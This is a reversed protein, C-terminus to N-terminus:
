SWAAFAHLFDKRLRRSIPITDEGISLSDGRITTIHQLNVLCGSCCVYFSESAGAAAIKVQADQITGRERFIGRDTHWLLYNGDKGIWTVRSADMRLIGERADSLLLPHNRRKGSWQLAKAVKTAFSQYEIPKVMFDCAEVEYGKIAYQAMNTIFVIAVTDDAARIERAATMGDVGPMGVDLFLINTDGKYNELLEVASFYIEISFAIHSAQEYRKLFGKILACDQSNDDVIAIRLM